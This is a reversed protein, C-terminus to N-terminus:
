FLFTQFNTKLYSDFTVLEGDIGLEEKAADLARLEREKVEDTEIKWAVQLLKREGRPSQVIFDVELRKETLFYSVTYGLRRLDLYIINEFLRGLDREYDLTTARVLGPDIAYLKKPNVLTKRMSFSYLPVFFALYADQIYDAYDYLTERSVTLGQDRLLHFLKNTSFPRAVNHIMLQIAAKLAATNHVNHREQVDKYVAVQLYDQLMSHRDDANLGLVGPFGGESLYSQFVKRIEAKRKADFFESTESISKSRLYERFSFPWIEVALSRGRLNTAIEKSLFKASSGTLYLEINKTDHLRRIISPWGDVNQIEDFFLHCKRSFNEPYLDYFADIYQSLKQTTLPQLRDDECNLYLIQQRDVGNKVLELVKQFLFTTKGTRRMGIAVKILSPTDPFKADRKVLGTLDTIKEFFEGRLIQLLDTLEM